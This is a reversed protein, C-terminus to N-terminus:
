HSPIRLRRHRKSLCFRLNAPGTMRSNFEGYLGQLTGRASRVTPESSCPMRKKVVGFTPARRRHPSDIPPDTRREPAVTPYM